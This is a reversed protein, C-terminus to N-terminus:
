ARRRLVVRPAEITIFLDDPPRRERLALGVACAILAAIAVLVGTLFMLGVSSM